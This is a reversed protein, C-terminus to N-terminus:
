VKGDGCSVEARRSCDGIRIVSFRRHGVSGRRVWTEALGELRAVPFSEFIKPELGEVSGLDGRDFQELKSPQQPLGALFGQGSGQELEERLAQLLALFEVLGHEGEALQNSEGFLRVDLQQM